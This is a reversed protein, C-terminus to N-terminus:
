KVFAIFHERIEDPCDGKGDRLQRLPLGPLPRYHVMDRKIQPIRYVNIVEPCPIGLAKLKAANDAFRQAYPWFLASSILRKRRFLKMYTGDQLLRVKDGHVDKEIVKAGERLALYNDYQLIQM